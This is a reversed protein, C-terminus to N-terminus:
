LVVASTAVKPFLNREEKRPSNQSKRRVRLFYQSSGATSVISANPPNITIVCVLVTAGM